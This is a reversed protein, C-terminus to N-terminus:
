HRGITDRHLAGRPATARGCGFRFPVADDHGHAGVQGVDMKVILDIGDPPESIHVLRVSRVPIAGVGFEPIEGPMKAIEQRVETIIDDADTILLRHTASFIGGANGIRAAAPIVGNGPAMDQIEREDVVFSAPEFKIEAPALAAIEADFQVKSLGRGSVM